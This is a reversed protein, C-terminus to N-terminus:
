LEMRKTNRSAQHHVIVPEKIFSPVVGDKNIIALYEIPLQYAKLLDKYKNKVLKDLNLQELIQPNRENEEIWDDLLERCIPKNRILLTGSALHKKGESKGRWFLGSDFDHYAIDFDSPIQFFLEPSKEFTADADIMVIDDNFDNIAKKIVSAKLCTNKKWSHESNVKIQTLNLGVRKASPIVLDNAIQEYVGETFYTCIKM